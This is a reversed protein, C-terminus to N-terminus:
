GGMITEFTDLDAQFPEDARPWHVVLDTVGVEAYTRVAEGFAEPSSLCQDLTLGLLVLRDITAPDRGIAECSADLRDMQSRVAAAGAAPSLLPGSHDRPGTTVWMQGHQAALAMGRPGTAAVAFPVRPQQVCGPFTRAEEVQYYGGAITATPETLLRHTMTVLEDFRDAREGPSWPEHGTMTADWGTGGAGIGLTIRGGSIDDLAILEKALTLPERTNPSAVLTGLRIRDTVMAAATLTPMAAHWTRDRFSRWTLHDYTWAHHFGLEDARRWRPASEAWPRDPLIVVGVRLDVRSLGM